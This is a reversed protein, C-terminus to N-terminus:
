KRAAWVIEEGLGLRALLNHFKPEQALFWTVPSTVAVEHPDYGTPAPSRGFLRRVRNLAVQFFAQDYWVLEKVEIRLLRFGARTLLSKLSRPTFHLRHHPLQLKGWDAGEVKATFSGFNPVSGSVIGGPALVRSVEELLAGPESSHELVHRMLVIDFSEPYLGLNELPGALVPLGTKAEALRAAEPSLDAGTASYGMKDAQGLLWGRGVGIEILKGPPPSFRKALSLPRLLREQEQPDPEDQLHDFYDAGYLGALDAIPELDVTQALRCTPCLAVLGDPRGIKLVLGVSGCGVCRAAALRETQSEAVKSARVGGPRPHDAHDPPM